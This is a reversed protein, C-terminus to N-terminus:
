KNEEKQRRRREMIIVLTWYVLTFLAVAGLCLLGATGGQLQKNEALSAFIPVLLMVFVIFLVIFRKLITRNRKKKQKTKEM